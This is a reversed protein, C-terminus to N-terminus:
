FKPDRVARVTELVLTSMVDYAKSAAVYDGKNLANKLEHMKQQFLERKASSTRSLLTNELLKPNVESLAVSV